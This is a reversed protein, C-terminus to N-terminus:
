KAKKVAFKLASWTQDIACIKYDVLGVALGVERVCQQTLDSSIRSSRKPWVIWLGGKGVVTSMRKINSKLSKRSKVFWIILDNKKVMRKKMIVDEPVDTLVKDFNRPANVLIIVSKPKIGLKKHLPAGSYGALLSKTAVPRLPAHAIAEKIAGKIGDWNTYVADPLHRKIEIIKQRKGGVFIIPVNRTAKYHRIYVGIDRGQSPLRGLDILIAAPPNKKLDRLVEPSMPAYAVHYGSAKLERLRKKAEVADWHVLRVTKM